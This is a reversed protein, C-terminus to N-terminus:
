GNQNRQRETVFFLCRGFPRNGACCQQTECYVCMALAAYLRALVISRM